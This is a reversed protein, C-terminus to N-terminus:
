HKTIENYIKVVKDRMENLSGNNYIVFNAKDIKEKQSALRKLRHAYDENTGGKAKFRKECIEQNADVTIVYDFFPDFGAEYLLPIEVVFLPASQTKQAIDYQQEIERLVEPYLINELSQLLYPQYFVKKAIKSRDIQFNVVIDSGLLTIVKQGIVTGPSLLQHVIEDASVVYAGLEKFFQCVSSKGCAISGTIAVKLLSLM